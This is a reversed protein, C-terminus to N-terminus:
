LGEVSEQVIRWLLTRDKACTINFKCLLDSEVAVEACLIDKTVVGYSALKQHLIASIGHEARFNEMRVSIESCKQLFKKRHLAKTIGIEDKLTENDFHSILEMDAYECEDFKIFYQEMKMRQLWAYFQNTAQEQM